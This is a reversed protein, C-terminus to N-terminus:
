ACKLLIPTLTQWLTELYRSSLSRERAVEEITRAGSTLTQAEGGSSIGSLNVTQLGSDENIPTPNPIAAITAAPSPTDPRDFALHSPATSELIALLLLPFVLTEADFESRMLEVLDDESMESEVAPDDDDPDLLVVNTGERYRAAYKGREGGRFDYEDALDPDSAM